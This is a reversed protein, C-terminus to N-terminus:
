EDIREMKALGSKGCATNFDNGQINEISYIESIARAIDGHKRTGSKKIARYIDIQDPLDNLAAIRGCEAAFDFVRKIVEDMNGPLDRPDGGISIVADIWNANQNPETMAKEM